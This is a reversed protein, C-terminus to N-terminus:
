ESSLTLEADRVSRVLTATIKQALENFNEGQTANQLIMENVLNTINVTVNRVSEGAVNVGSLGSSASSSATSSDSMGDTSGSASVNPEQTAADGFLNNINAFADKLAIPDNSKELIILAKNIAEITSNYERKKRDNSTGFSGENDGAISSMFGMAWREYASEDTASSRGTNMRDIIAREKMKELGLKINDLYKAQAASDMQMFDNGLWENAQNKIFADQGAKLEGEKKKNYASPDNINLLVDGFKSAWDLADAMWLKLQLLIPQVTDGFRVWAASLKGDVIASMTDLDGEANALAKSFDFDYNDFDDFTELVADGANQVNKLMGRLGENGGVQDILQSVDQDTLNKFKKNVDFLIEDIKRFSGDQNFVKINIKELKNLDEFAGKTLTAAIDVTKATKSFMAFIKNAEDFDQGAAAAAGSYETQVNALQDFTTVGFQVTKAWSAMFDDLREVGFDYTDFAKAASNVAPDFGMKMTRSFVGIKGTIDEVEKGYKGTASQIDFFAKSTANVDLGKDFSVDLVSDRLSDIESKTKDLNLNQLELFTNNFERSAQSGKHMAIAAGAIVGTFIGIPSTAFSVARGLLPFEYSLGQLAGRMRSTRTGFNKEVGAFGNDFKNAANDLQGFGDITEKRANKGKDIWNFEYTTREVSM